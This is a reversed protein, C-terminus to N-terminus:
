LDIVPRVSQWNRQASKDRPQSIENEKSGRGLPGLLLAEATKRLCRDKGWQCTASPTVNLSACVCIASSDGVRGGGGGSDSSQHLVFPFVSDVGTGM